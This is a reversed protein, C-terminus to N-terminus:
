IAYISQRFVRDKRTGLRNLYRVDVVPMMDAAQVIEGEGDKRQRVYHRAHWVTASAPGGGPITYDSGLFEALDNCADQYEESVFGKHNVLESLMPIFMRGRAHRGRLGTRRQMILCIEDGMADELEAGAGDLAGVMETGVHIGDAYQDAKMYVAKCSHQYQQGDAVHEWLGHFAVHFALAIHDITAQDMTVGEDHERYETTSCIKGGTQFEYTLALLAKTGIPVM